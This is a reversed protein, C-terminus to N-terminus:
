RVTSDFKAFSIKYRFQGSLIRQWNTRTKQAFLCLTIKTVDHIHFTITEPSKKGPQLFLRAHKMIKDKKCIITKTKNRHVFWIIDLSLNSNILISNFYQLPKEVVVSHHVSYLTYTYERWKRKPWFYQGHRTCSASWRYM